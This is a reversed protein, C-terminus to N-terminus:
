AYEITEGKEVKNHSLRRNKFSVIDEAKLSEVNEVVNDVVPLNDTQASYCYCDFKKWTSKPIIVRKLKEEVDEDYNNITSGDESYREERLTVVLFFPLWKFVGHVYFYESLCRRVSFHIDSISQSNYVVMGGHTEHAILKNFLLLRDNLDSDKVLTSDAFLSAEDVWIVSKFAFRKERKLLERTLLVHPCAVPITTYFLPLEELPKSFLRAFFNRVKVSRLNRRYAKYALAFSFTSKGSKVGGTVMAMAGVKPVKFHKHIYWTIFIVAILILIGWFM